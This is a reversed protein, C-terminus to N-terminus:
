CGFDVVGVFDEAVCCAGAAFDDDFVDVAWASGTLASEAFFITAAL